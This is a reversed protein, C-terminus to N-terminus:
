IKTDKKSGADLASEGVLKSKSVEFPINSAVTASSKTASLYLDCGFGKLM